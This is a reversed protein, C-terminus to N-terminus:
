PFASTKVFLPANSRLSYKRSPYHFELLTFAAVVVVFVVVCNDNKADQYECGNRFTSYHFLLLKKKLCTKAKFCYATFYVKRSREVSESGM